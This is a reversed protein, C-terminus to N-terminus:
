ERGLGDPDIMSVPNDGGYAYQNLSLPTQLAGFLSDRTAFRGQLPDYARAGMDVVGTDSDTPDSQFSFYSTSGTTAGKEEYPRYAQTGSV